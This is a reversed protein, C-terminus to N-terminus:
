SEGKANSKKQIHYWTLLYDIIARRVVEAISIHDTYAIHRLHDHMERSLKVALRNEYM